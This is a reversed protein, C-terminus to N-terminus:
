GGLCEIEEECVEQEELGEQEIYRDIRGEVQEPILALDSLEDPEDALAELYRQSARPNITGPEYTDHHQQPQQRLQLMPPATSAPPEPVADRQEQARATEFASLHRRTSGKGHGRKAKPNSTELAGKPRGKGRVVLPNLLPPPPLSPPATHPVTIAETTAQPPQCWWWHRDFQALQLPTNTVDHSFLIHRCPLGMSTLIPCSGGCPGDIRQRPAGAATGRPITQLGRVIAQLAYPTLDTRVLSLLDIDTYFALRNFRQAQATLIRNSQTDWFNLLGRFVTALDGTSSRIWRKISAHSSEAISTSTHGFHRVNNIFCRVFQHKYPEIWTNVVYAVAEYPHSAAQLRALLEEFQPVSSAEILENWARLFGAFTPHREITGDRLRIPKPFFAKTKALVNMNIHWRCILGPIGEFSPYAALANILAQDRDTVLCRPKPLQYITLYGELAHLAWAFPEEKEGELFVTAIQFAQRLQSVGCVNLLPMKFRNTKYTTDLILTDPSQRLLEVHQRPAIFLRQLHGRESRKERYFFADPQQKLQKLLWEIPTLGGLEERRHAALLNTIDKPMIDRMQPPGTSRLTAAIQGPRSGSNWMAIAEDKRTSLLGMRWTAFGAAEIWPHNHPSGRSAGSGRSVIAECGWVGSRLRLNVRYPCKTRHSSTHRRKSPHLDPNSACKPAGAKACQYTVRTPREVNPYYLNIVLAYGNTFAHSRLASDAAELTDYRSALLTTGCHREFSAM